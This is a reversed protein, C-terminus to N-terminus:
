SIWHRSEQQWIRMQDDITMGHWLISECLLGIPGVATLDKSWHLDHEKTSPHPQEPPYLHDHGDQQSQPPRFWVPWVDNVKHKVAYKNLVRKFDGDAGEKKSCTRRVQLVRRTFIQVTPDLDNKASTLTAFFRDANHSNNRSRFVDIVAASMKALKAPTVQAAEVGYFAGAYVKAAIARAKTDVSAPCYRLRKLQAYVKKSDRTWLEM